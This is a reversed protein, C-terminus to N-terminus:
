GLNKFDVRFRFRFFFLFYFFFYFFFLFFIFYFIFFFYFLFFHNKKIFSKKHVGWFGWWFLLKFMLSLLSRGIPRERRRM